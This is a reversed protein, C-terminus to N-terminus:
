PELIETNTHMDYKTNCLNYLHTNGKLVVSSSLDIIVLNCYLIISVPNFMTFIEFEPIIM